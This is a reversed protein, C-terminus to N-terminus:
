TRSNLLLELFLRFFRFFIAQAYLHLYSECVWINLKLIMLIYVILCLIVNKALYLRYYVQLTKKKKERFVYFDRLCHENILGISLSNCRFSPGRYASPNLCAPSPIYYASHINFELREHDKSFVGCDFQLVPSLGPKKVCVKMLLDRPFSGEENRFTIPSLLASVAVEEGSECKRRLVVDQSAPSDWDVVFDGPNGGQYNQFRDHSQEHRIESQLVKLLDLDQLAKQSQRLIGNVRRM